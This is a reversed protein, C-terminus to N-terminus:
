RSRAYSPILQVYSIPYLFCLTSLDKAPLLILRPRKCRFAMILSHWLYITKAWHGHLCGVHM